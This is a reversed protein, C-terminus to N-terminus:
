SVPLEKPESFMVTFDITVLCNVAPPDNSTAASGAFVTFYAEEAPDASILAGLRKWNDEIDKINFFIRPDYTKSVKRPNNYLNFVGVSKNTQSQELM